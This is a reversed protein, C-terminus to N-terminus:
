EGTLDRHGIGVDDETGMPNDRSQEWQRYMYDNFEFYRELKSKQAEQRQINDEPNDTARVIVPRAGPAHVHLRITNPYIGQLPFGYFHWAAESSSVYRADQYNRIENVIEANNDDGKVGFEVRDPGKYTYKYLYKIAWQVM